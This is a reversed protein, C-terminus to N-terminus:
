IKGKFRVPSFTGDFAADLERGYKEPPWLRLGTEPVASPSHLAIVLRHGPSLLKVKSRQFVALSWPTIRSEGFVEPFGAVAAM